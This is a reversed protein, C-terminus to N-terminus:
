DILWKKEINAKEPSFFSHFTIKLPYSGALHIEYCLYRAHSYPVLLIENKVFDSSINAFIM